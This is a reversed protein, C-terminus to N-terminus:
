VVHRRWPSLSPTCEMAGYSQPPRNEMFLKVCGKITKPPCTHKASSPKHTHKLTTRHPRRHHCHILQRDVPQLQRGDLASSDGKLRKLEVKFEVVPASESGDPTYTTM